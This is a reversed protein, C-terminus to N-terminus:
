NSVTITIPASTVTGGSYTGVSQLSYTGNPVSASNWYAYWGWISSTGTAIVQNTLTGGTLEFSVGTVNSSAAADVLASAGTLTGGDSPVVVSTTSAVPNNVTITVPVSSASIGGVDTAVSQLTYTGNPVSTSDFGGIWGYLTPSSGSIVRDSVTGGFLEFSVSAIGVSSSAGADLWTDGTVTAGKSPVLVATNVDAVKTGAM